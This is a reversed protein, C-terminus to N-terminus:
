RLRGQGAARLGIQNEHVHANRDEVAPLHRPSDSCRGGGSRDRDDSESSMRKGTVTLSGQFRTAIVVVGLRNVQWPQEALDFRKQFLSLRAIFSGSLELGSAM